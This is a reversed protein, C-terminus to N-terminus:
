NMPAVSIAVRLVARFAVALLVFDRVVAFFRVTFRLDALDRVAVL